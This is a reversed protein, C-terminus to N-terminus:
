QKAQKDPKEEWICQKCLPCHVSKENSIKLMFSRIKHPDKENLLKKFEIVDLIVDPGCAVLSGGFEACSLTYGCNNSCILSAKALEKSDIAVILPLIAMTEALLFEGVEKNITRIANNPSFEPQHNPSSFSYFNCGIYSSTAEQQEEPYVFVLTLVSTAFICFFNFKM